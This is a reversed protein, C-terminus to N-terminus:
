GAEEGVRSARAGDDAQAARQAGRAAGGGAAPRATLAAAVRQELQEVASRQKPTGGDEQLSIHDLLRSLLAQARWRAEYLGKTAGEM